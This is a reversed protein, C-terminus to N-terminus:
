GAQFHAPFIVSVRRAEDTMFTEETQLATGSSEEGDGDYSRTEPWHGMRYDIAEKKIQYSPLACHSGCQPSFSSTQHNPASQSIIVPGVSIRGKQILHLPYYKSAGPLLKQLLRNCILGRVRTLQTTPVQDLVRGEANSFMGLGCLIIQMNGEKHLSFLTELLFLVCTLFASSYNPFTLHSDSEVHQVILFM